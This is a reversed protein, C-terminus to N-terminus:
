VSQVPDSVITAKDPWKGFQPLRNPLESWELIYDSMQVVAADIENKEEKPPSQLFAALKKTNGCDYVIMSPLEHNHEHLSISNLILGRLQIAKLSDVGALFFDSTTDPLSIGLRQLNSLIWDELEPLTMMLTGNSAGNELRNYVKDIVSEFKLYVQARKISAKDTSPCEENEPMVIVMEKSLQSFSESHKNANEITPWVRNLFEENTLGSAATSRFLLLGPVSRDIGFVVAERVLFNQVIAGEIPLPLVKEGNLLTVRDDARGVFKWANPITPHAIFLDSTHFSNPPDNSNTVAKTKLGDLVICEYVNGSVVRMLLYPLVEPLPRLYNWAKDDRPRNLSSFLQSAEARTCLDAFTYTLFFLYNYSGFLLGIFVGAKTLLDGLDDPCRSGSSSVVRCKKLAEIGDEKEALLKLVYPVTWVIEPKAATIAATLTDHTQPVHGNFVYLTKRGHIAQSYTVVGHAHSFPLSLFATLGPSTKVTLLLRANTYTVPKPLGTSGSSHLILYPRWQEKKYDINQRSFVPGLDTQPMDYSSRSLIENIILPKVVHQRLEKALKHHEISHLIVCAGTIELLKAV